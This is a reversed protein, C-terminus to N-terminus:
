EEITLLKEDPDITVRFRELFDKMGFLLHVKDTDAGAVWIHFPKTANGEIDELFVEVRALRVNLKCEKKQVVGALEHTVYERIGLEDFLSRPILTLSAGTDFYMRIPETHSEDKKKFRVDVITHTFRGFSFAASLHGAMEEAYWSCGCSRTDGKRLSAGTTIIRKGCKCICLWKAQGQKASGSRKVVTLLGYKNGVEAILKGVTKGSERWEAGLLLM